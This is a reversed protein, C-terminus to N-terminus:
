QYELKVKIKGSMLAAYIGQLYFDSSQQLQAVEAPKASQEQPATQGSNQNITTKSSQDIKTGENTVSSSTSTQPNMSTVSSSLNNVAAPLDKSLKGVSKELTKDPELIKKVSASEVLKTSKLNVSENTNTKNINTKTVDTSDSTNSIGLLTNLMSQNTKTQEDEKTSTSQTDVTSKLVNSIKSDISEKTKNLSSLNTSKQNVTSAENKTSAQPIGTLTELMKATSDSVTTSSTTKESISDKLVKTLNVISNSNDASESKTVNNITTNTLSPSQAQVQVAPTSAIAVVNGSTAAIASTQEPATLKTSDEPKPSTLKTQDEPKPSPQEIRAPKINVTAALNPSPKATEKSLVTESTPITSPTTSKNIASDLVTAPTLETVNSSILSGPLPESPSLSTVGQKIQNVSPLIVGEIKEDALQTKIQGIASKYATKLSGLEEASAIIAGTETNVVRIVFVSQNDVGIPLLEFFTLYNLNYKV